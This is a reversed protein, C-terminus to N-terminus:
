FQFSFTNKGDTQFELELYQLLLVRCGSLSSHPSFHCSNSMTACLKGYIFINKNHSNEINKKDGSLIEVRSNQIVSVSNASIIVQLSKTLVQKVGAYDGGLINSAVGAEGRGRWPTGHQGLRVGRWFMPVSSAMSRATHARM